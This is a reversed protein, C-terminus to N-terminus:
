VIAGTDECYPAVKAEAHGAPCAESVKVIDRSVFVQNTGPNFVRYGKTYDTYGVLVGPISKADWKKLSFDKPVYAM